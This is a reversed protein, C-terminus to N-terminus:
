KQVFLFCKVYLTTFPPRINVSFPPPPPVVGVVGWVCDLTDKMKSELPSPVVFNEASLFLIRMKTMKRNSRSGKFLGPQDM